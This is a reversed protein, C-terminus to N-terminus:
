SGLKSAVPTKRRPLAMADWGGLSGGAGSGFTAMMGATIIHRWLTHAEQPTPLGPAPEWQPMNMDARSHQNQMSGKVRILRAESSGQQKVYGDVSHVPGEWREVCGERIPAAYEKPSLPRAKDPRKFVRGERHPSSRSAHKGRTKRAYGSTRPIPPRCPRAQGVASSRKWVQRGSQLRGNLRQLSEELQRMQLAFMIRNTLGMSACRKNM